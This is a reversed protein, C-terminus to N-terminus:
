SGRAGQAGRRSWAEELEGALEAVLEKLGCADSQMSMMQLLQILTQVLDSNVHISLRMIIGPILVLLGPKGRWLAAM